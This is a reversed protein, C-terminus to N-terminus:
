GNRDATILEMIEGALDRGVVVNRNMEYVVLAFLCVAFLIVSYLFSFYLFFAHGVCVFGGDM